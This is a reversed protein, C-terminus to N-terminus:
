LKDMNFINLYEILKNKEEISTHVFNPDTIGNKVGNWKMYFYQNYENNFIADKYNLILVIYQANINNPLIASDNYWPTPSNPPIDNSISFDFSFSPKENLSQEIILIKGILDKAAHIGSNRMTIQIRFPPSNDLKKIGPAKCEFYPRKFHKEENLASLAFYITALAALAAIAGSISSIIDWKNKKNSM